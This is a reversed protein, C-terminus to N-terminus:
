KRKQPIRDRPLSSCSTCTLVVLVSVVNFYVVSRGNSWRVASASPGQVHLGLISYLILEIEPM